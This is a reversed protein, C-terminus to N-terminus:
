TNSNMGVDTPCKPDKASAKGCVGIESTSEDEARWTPYRHYCCIKTRVRLDRIRMIHYIHNM